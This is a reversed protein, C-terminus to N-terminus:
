LAKPSIDLNIEAWKEDDDHGRKDFPRLPIGENSCFRILEDQIAVLIAIARDKDAFKLPGFWKEYFKISPTGGSFTRLDMDLKAAGDKYLGLTLSDLHKFIRIDTSGGKTWNHMEVTLKVWFRVDSESRDLVDLNRKKREMDPQDQICM